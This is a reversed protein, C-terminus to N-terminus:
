EHQCVHEANAHITNNGPNTPSLAGFSTPELKSLLKPIASAEEAKNPETLKM